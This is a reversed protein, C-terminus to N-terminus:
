PLDIDIVMEGLTIREEREEGAPIIWSPRREFMGAELDFITTTTEFVGPKGHPHRRSIAMGGESTYFSALIGDGFPGIHASERVERSRDDWDEPMRGIVVIDGGDKPYYSFAGEVSIVAGAFLQAASEAQDKNWTGDQVVQCVPGGEKHHFSINM